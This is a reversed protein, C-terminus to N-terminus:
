NCVGNQPAKYKQLIINKIDTNMTCNSIKHQLEKGDM